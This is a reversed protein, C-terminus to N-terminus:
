FNGYIEKLQKQGQEHGRIGVRTPNRVTLACKGIRYPLHALNIFKTSLFEPVHSVDSMSGYVM